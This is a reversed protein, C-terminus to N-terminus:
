EGITKLFEDVKSKLASNIELIKLVWEKAKAKDGMQYYASAIDAHIQVDRPSLKLVEEYYGLAKSFNGLNMQIGALFVINTLRGQYPYGLSIAKDVEAQALEFKKQNFYIVGKYWHALHSNPAKQLVEDLVAEAGALDNQQMRVNFIKFLVDINRPFIQSARRAMEESKKFYEPNVPGLFNYLNCLSLYYRFDLPSEALGKQLEGAMFLGYDVASQNEKIKSPNVQGIFERILNNRAEGRIFSPSKFLERSKDLASSFDQQQISGLIQIVKLSEFFPKVTGWWM